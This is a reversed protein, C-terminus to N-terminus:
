KKQWFVNAELSINLREDTGALKNVTLSKANFYFNFKELQYFYELLDNFNGQLSLTIPMTKYQDKFSEKSGLRVDQSINFQQAIRELDTIFELEQGEKLFIGELMQKKDIIEQIEKKAQALTKGEQYLSELKEQESKIKESLFNVESFIPKIVILALVIISFSLLAIIIIIKKESTM